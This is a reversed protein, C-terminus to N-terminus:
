SANTKKRMLSQFSRRPPVKEPLKKGKTAANFEKVGAEGLAKHGAPSNGWRQQARSVFPM